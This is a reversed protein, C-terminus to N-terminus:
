EDELEGFLNNLDKEFEDLAEKDDNSLEWASVDSEIVQNTNEVINEVEQNTNKIVETDTWCSALIFVSLFVILYKNFM